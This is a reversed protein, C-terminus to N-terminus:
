PGDTPKGSARSATAASFVDRPQGTEASRTTM